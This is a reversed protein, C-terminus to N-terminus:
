RGQERAEVVCAWANAALAEALRPVTLAAVAVPPGFRGQAGAGGPVRRVVFGMGTREVELAGAERGAALVTVGLCHRGADARWEPQERAVLHADARAFAGNIARIAIAVTQASSAWAAASEAEDAFPTDAPDRSAPPPARPAPPVAPALVRPEETPARERPRRVVDIEVDGSAAGSGDAVPRSTVWPIFAFRQAGLWDRLLLVLGAGILIGSIALLASTLM